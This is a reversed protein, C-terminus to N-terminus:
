QGGHEWGGERDYKWCRVKHGDIEALDPERTECLPRAEPCRTCFRCGKPMESLDPVSGKINFLKESSDQDLRPISKLLGQTYPHLPNKFISRVDGYEMEKGAYMVMVDDAMEAVVGMDHTILMISKNDKEKLERMLELIQAQITVDLATTPEDAIFLSANCSLAMAIMVRQRMGGSLQHPYEKLRQAPSPIGVKRLMEEARDWAAKKDMKSHATITEVLQKGITMVPNLGTMSDQFIMAIENGRIQRIEKESLKTLNRGGFLIEGSAIKGSHAPILRLISMSTVSKGCGSEGVIGLTEGRRISFSVGDVATVTGNKGSFQTVLKKVEILNESM